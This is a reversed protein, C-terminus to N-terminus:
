EFGLYKRVALVIASGAFYSVWAGALLFPGFAIHTRRGAKKMLILVIGFISGFLFGLYVGLLGKAAGLWIGLGIELVVDGFGMGKGRTVLYIFLIPLAVVLGSLVSYEGWQGWFYTYILATVIIVMQLADPILHLKIDILSIVISASLLIWILAMRFIFAPVVDGLSTLSLMLTLVFFVGTMAEVGSYAQSLHKKCCRSRGKQILFSLIPILEVPSLVKKCYDCHSRGLLSKGKPLRDVLVNLFSGVSAGMAFVLVIEFAVFAALPISVM